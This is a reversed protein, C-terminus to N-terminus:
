LKLTNKFKGLIIILVWDKIVGSIDSLTNIDCLNAAIKLNITGEYKPLDLDAVVKDSEKLLLQGNVDQYM